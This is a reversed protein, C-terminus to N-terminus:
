GNLVEAALLLFWGSHEGYTAPVAPDEYGWEMLTKCYMYADTDTVHGYGWWKEGDNFCKEAGATLRAALERNSQRFMAM